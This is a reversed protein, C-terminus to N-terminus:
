QFVELEGTGARRIIARLRRLEDLLLGFYRIRCELFSQLKERLILAVSAKGVTLVVTELRADGRGRDKDISIAFM